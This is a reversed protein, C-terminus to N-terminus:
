SVDERLQAIQDSMAKQIHDIERRVMEHLQQEYARRSAVERQSELAQSQWLEVEGGDAGSDRRQSNLLVNAHRQGGFLTLAGILAAWLGAIVGLSVQRQSHGLAVMWCARLTLSFAIAIGLVRLFVRPRAPRAAESM